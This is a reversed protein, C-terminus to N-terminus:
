RFAVSGTSHADAVVLVWPDRSPDAPGVLCAATDGSWTVPGCAEDIRRSEGSQVDDLQLFSGDLPQHIVVSGSPSVSVAERQGDWTEISPGLEGNLGLLRVEGDNLGLWALGAGDADDVSRVATAARVPTPMGVQWVFLDRPAGLNVDGRLDPRRRVLASGDPAVTETVFGQPLRVDSMRGDPTLRVVSGVLPVVYGQGPVPRLLDGGLIGWEKTWEANPGIVVHRVRGDKAIDISRDQELGAWSSGDAWRARLEPAPGGLEGPVSTWAHAVPDYACSVDAFALVVRGDVWGVLSVSPLQEGKVPDHAPVAVHGCAGVVPGISPASASADDGRSPLPSPTASCSFSTFALLWVLSTRVIVSLAANHGQGRLRSAASGPAEEAPAHAAASTPSRPILALLRLVRRDPNAVRPDDM